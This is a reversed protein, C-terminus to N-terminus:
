RSSQMNKRACWRHVCPRRLGGRPSRLFSGYARAAGGTAALVGVALFLAGKALVHHMAYYAVLGPTMAMGGLIGMGFAAAVVGMQSVSSYALVAKPNRQTIGLAVGWFATVFGLVVLAEGWGSPTTAVPLFRLLGIM